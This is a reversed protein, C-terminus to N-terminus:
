NIRKKSMKSPWWNFRELYLMVAPVFFPWSILTDFLVGMAVGLGIEQIIAIGSFNLAFFTVFLITGLTIIVGGNESISTKIAERSDKGKMVEERARTIMFIDYDLGVALLTIFTFLPVFVLLPLHQLYYFFAYTFVLSMVVTAIVMLILRVPTLVSSLQILLIIFISIALLPVILSFTSHVYINSDSLGQTLGGIYYSYTTPTSVSSLESPINLDSVTANGSYALSAMQFYIVVYSTNTGIYSAIQSEYTSRQLAPIGALSIPVYYGFPLTPGYVQSIGHNQLLANEISTVTSVESMNYTINAGSGSSIPSPLKVVMFNREFFDGHFSSNVVSIAEIGSSKPLLSFVDMGVPTIAYVYTALFTAVIFVVIIKGKNHVVAEGVRKMGREFPAHTREAPKSPWFLRERFIAFLAVLFTQAALISVTIGLANTIGADSFLPVNAIWLILYSMAVTIGSTFVAHGSWHTAEAVADGNGNRLERRFRSMMYVVYDTTLGLLLILLLTPTIFSAESHFVYTYLLGNAGMAIVAVMGFIMLPVFASVPSRFFVGVIIVSLFIGIGLATILGGLSEQGLQSSFASSGAVYYNSGPIVGTYNDAISAAQNVFDIGFPKGFQLVTITTKNDYGVFQHIVYPTPMFPYNWINSSNLEQDIEMGLPQGSLYTSEAYTYIIASNPNPQVLPNRDLLTYISSVVMTLSQLAVSLSTPDKGLSYSTTVFQVPTVFLFKTIFSNLTANSAIFSSIHSVSLSYLNSAFVPQKTYNVLYIHTDLLSFIGAVNSSAAALSTMWPGTVTSNVISNMYGTPSASFDTQNFTTNWIKSFNNVYSSGLQFTGVAPIASAPVITTNYASNRSQNFNGTIQFEKSFNSLYFLPLGFVISSTQNLSANLLYIQSNISGLAADTGNTENYLVLSFQRLIGKEVTFISEVSIYDYNSGQLGKVLSDQLQVLQPTNNIISTGSTVIVLSSNGSSGNTSPFYKNVYNQAINSQSNAPVIGSALDYSVNNFFSGAFPVMLLFLAIWFIVIKKRNREAFRGISLFNNEFM